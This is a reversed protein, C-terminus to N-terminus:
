NKMIQSLKKLQEGFVEYLDKNEEALLKQEKLLKNNEIQLEKNQIGEWTDIDLRMVQNSYNYIDNIIRSEIFDNESNKEGSLNIVRVKINENPFYIYIQGNTANNNEILNIMSAFDTGNGEGFVHAVGQVRFALNNIEVPFDGKKTKTDIYIVEQSIPIKCDIGGYGSWPMM